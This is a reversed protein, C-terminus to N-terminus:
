SKVLQNTEETIFKNLESLVEYYEDKIKDPAVHTAIYKKIEKTQASSVHKLTRMVTDTRKSIDLTVGQSEIAVQLLSNNIFDEITFNKYANNLGEFTKWYNFCYGCDEVYLKQAQRSGDDSDTFIFIKKDIFQVLPTVHKISSAGHAFATGYAKMDKLLLKYKPNKSKLACNFIEYDTWGEFLINIQKMNEFASTGIARLLVEDNTLVSDNTHPHLTTVGTNKKVIVHREPLGKDIMYQSHTSYIVTNRHSIKLLEEMLYRAGSPYLSRDPEDILIISDELDGCEVKTSIMLLIAIFQKFGDSRDEYNYKLGDSIKPIIETGNFDFAFEINALDPWKSRFEKTVTKAVNEFLNVYDGDEQRADTFTKELDSHGALAFLNRLPICEDPDSIFTRLNITKPLLFKEEYRWYVLEPLNKQIYGSFYDAFVAIVNDKSVATYACELSTVLDAQVFCKNSYKKGEIITEAQLQVLPEVLELQVPLKYYRATKAKTKFRVLYTGFSFFRKIFNEVSIKKENLKFLSNPFKAEMASVFEVIEDDTLRFDYDIFYDIDNLKEGQGKKRYDCPEIKCPTDSLGMGIAKLVNSKGAENKGLLITCNHALDLKVNKISRFNNIEVSTLKMTM